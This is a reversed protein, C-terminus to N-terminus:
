FSRYARLRGSLKGAFIRNSGDRVTFLSVSRNISFACHRVSCYVKKPTEIDVSILHLRFSIMEPVQNELTYSTKYACVPTICVLPISGIWAEFM